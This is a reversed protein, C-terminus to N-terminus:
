ATQLSRSHTSFYFQGDKLKRMLILLLLSEWGDASSNTYNSIDEEGVAVVGLM